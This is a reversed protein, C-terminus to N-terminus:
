HILFKANDPTGVTVYLFRIQSPVMLNQTLDRAKIRTLDETPLPDSAAMLQPTPWLCPESGENSHSHQLSSAVVRILGRAQSGGYAM